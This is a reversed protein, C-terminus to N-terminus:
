KSHFKMWMEVAKLIPNNANKITEKNTFSIMNIIIEGCFVM